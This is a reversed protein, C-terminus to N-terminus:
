PAPSVSIPLQLVPSGLDSLRSGDGRVVDFKVLWEGAPPAPVSLNLTARGGRALTPVAVSGLLTGLNPSGDYLTVAPVYRAQLRWGSASLMGKNVVRIQYGVSGGAVATGPDSLVSYGVAYSRQAFYAQVADYYAAAMSQRVRPQKLLSLEYPNSVYLGESLVAPM